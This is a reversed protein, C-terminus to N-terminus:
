DRRTPSEVLLIGGKKELLRSVLDLPEFMVDSGVPVGTTLFRLASVDVGVCFDKAFRVFACKAETVTSPGKASLSRGCSSLSKIPCLCRVPGSERRIFVTLFPLNPLMM